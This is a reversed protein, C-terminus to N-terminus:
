LPIINLYTLTEAIPYDLHCCKGGHITIYGLGMCIELGNDASFRIELFQVYIMWFCKLAKEVRRSEEAPLPGTSDAEEEEGSAEIRVFLDILRWVSIWWIWNLGKISFLCAYSSVIRSVDRVPCSVTGTRALSLQRITAAINWMTSSANWSVPESYNVSMGSSASFYIDRGSTM